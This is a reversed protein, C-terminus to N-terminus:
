KQVLGATNGLGLVWFLIMGVAMAILVGGMLWDKSASRGSAQQAAQAKKKAAQRADDLSTVEATEERAHGNSKSM